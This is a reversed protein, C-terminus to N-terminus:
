QKYDPVIEGANIRFIEVHKACQGKSWQLYNIKIDRAMKGFSENGYKKILRRCIDKEDNKQKRVTPKIVMPQNLEPFVTNLDQTPVPKKAEVKKEADEDDSDFIGQKAYHAKNLRVRAVSLLAKGEDSQRMSPKSNM